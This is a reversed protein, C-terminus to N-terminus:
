VNVAVLPSTVVGPCPTASITGVGPFPTVSVAALAGIGVADGRTVGLAGNPESPPRTDLEGYAAGGHCDPCGAGGTGGTSRTSRDHAIMSRGANSGSSNSRRRRM